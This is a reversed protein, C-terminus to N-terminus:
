LGAAQEAQIDQDYSLMPADSSGHLIRKIYNKTIKAVLPSLTIVGILNPISMLGNFTDSIDWALDLSMTAGVFIFAVFIVKYVITSKTGIRPNHAIRGILYEWSKTGYYSWGLVTSFAFLLIAIAIFIAGFQGFVTSFAEAVLVTKLADTLMEGTQLDVLGSTLIVLATLTCVVWTDAFVEFIGWMGQQVPEKVNSTSHVMVSSGLGAENSFVGRKFGWTVAMKVAYGVTGGAIARFGFAFSFISAFAAGISRYNVVVIVLAGVLYVVVMFPVIKETVSAIRKIGGIVVLGALVLLVVGSV